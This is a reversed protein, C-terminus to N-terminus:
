IFLQLLAVGVDCYNTVIADIKTLFDIVALLAKEYAILRCVSVRQQKEKLLPLRNEAATLDGLKSSLTKIQQSLSELKMEQVKAEEQLQIIIDCSRHTEEQANHLTDQLIKICEQVKELSSVLNAKFLQIEAVSKPLASPSQMAKSIIELIPDQFEVALLQSGFYTDFVPAALQHEQINLGTNKKLKQATEKALKYIILAQAGLQAAMDNVKKVIKRAKPSEFSFLQSDVRTWTNQVILTDDLLSCNEVDLV